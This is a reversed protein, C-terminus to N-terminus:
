KEAKAPKYGAKIADSELMYKGKKTKGYWRSGPKHYVGTETNVWVTVSDKSPGQTASTQRAPSGTAQPNLGGDVHTAFDGVSQVVTCNATPVCQANLALAGTILAPVLLLFAFSKSQIKM